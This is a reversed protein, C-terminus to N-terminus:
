WKHRWWSPPHKYRPKIMKKNNSSGDLKVPTEDFMGNNSEQKISRRRSTPGATSVVKTEPVFEDDNDEPEKKIKVVPVVIITNIGLLSLLFFVAVKGKAATVSKAPRTQKPKKGSVVKKQPNYGIGIGDDNEIKVKKNAATAKFYKTITDPACIIPEVKRNKNANSLVLVLCLM